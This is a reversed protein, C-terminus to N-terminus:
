IYGFRKILKNEANNIIKKDYHTIEKFKNGAYRDALFNICHYGCTYLNDDQQVIKNNKFKLYYPIDLKEILPYINMQFTAPPDRAFSDFYEISKDKYPDIFVAVWHTGPKHAESLNMVFSIVDDLESTEKTVLPMQDYSICGKYGPYKAMMANIQNDYLGEFGNDDLDVDEVGRGRVPERKRPRIVMKPIKEMLQNIISQQTQLNNTNKRTDEDLINDLDARPVVRMILEIAKFKPVDKNIGYTKIVQRLQGVPLKGLAKIQDDHYYEITPYDNFGKVEELLRNEIENYNRPTIDALPNMIDVQGGALSKTLDPEPEASASVGSEPVPPRAPSSAILTVDADDEEVDLLDDDDGDDDDEEPDPLDEADGDDEIEELTAGQQDYEIANINTNLFDLARQTQVYEKKLEPVLEILRNLRENTNNEFEIRKKDPITPQIQNAWNKLSYQRFQFAEYPTLHLLSSPNAWAPANDQPTTLALASNPPTLALASNPETSDKRPKSTRKTKSKRSDNGVKKKAKAKYKAVIAKKSERDTGYSGNYIINNIVLERTKNIDKTDDLYFRKGKREVYYKNETTDKKIRPPRKKEEKFPPLLVGGKRAGWLEAKNSKKKSQSM